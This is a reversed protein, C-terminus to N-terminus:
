GSQRNVLSFHKLNPKTRGSKTPIVAIFYIIPIPTERSRSTQPAFEPVILRGGTQHKIHFTGLSAPLM